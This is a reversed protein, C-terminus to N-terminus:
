RYGQTVEEAIQDINNIDVLGCATNYDAPHFKHKIYLYLQMIPIFGQLYPQQDVAIDIIGDRIADVTTPNLDYAAVRLKGSLSEERILKVVPITVLPSLSFIASTDPNEHLCKRLVSLGKMEDSTATVTIATADIEKQLLQSICQSRTEFGIHNEEQTALIVHSTKPLKAVMYRFLAKATEDENLGIYAMYPIKGRFDQGERTNFVLVPIERTRAQKIPKIWQSADTISVAIGAANSSVAKHFMEIQEAVHYQPPGQYIADVGLVRGADRVGREILACFPDVSGIHGIVYFTM